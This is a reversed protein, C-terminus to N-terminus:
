IYTRQKRVLARIEPVAAAMTLGPQGLGVNPFDALGLGFSVPCHGQLGPIVPQPVGMCLHPFNFSGFTAGNLVKSTPAPAFSCTSVHRPTEFNSLQELM